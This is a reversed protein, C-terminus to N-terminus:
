DSGRQRWRGQEVLRAFIDLSRRVALAFVPQFLRWGVAGLAGLPPQLDESWIFRSRGGPLELVEMTGSGRVVGGTHEVVVRRSDVWETVVMTDLFGVPGAGSWAELRAGVGRGDGFVPEVATGLMWDGQGRWDTFARFVEEPPAEIVVDLELHKM